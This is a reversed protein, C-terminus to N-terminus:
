DEQQRREGNGSILIQLIKTIFLFISAGLLVLMLSALAAFPSFIFLILLLFVVVSILPNNM